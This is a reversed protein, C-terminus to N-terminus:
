LNKKPFRGDNGVNSHLGKLFVNSHYDISTFISTFKRNSCITVNMIIFFAHIDKRFQYCPTKNQLDNLLPDALIGGIM